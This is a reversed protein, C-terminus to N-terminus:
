IFSISLYFLMHLINYIIYIYIYLNMSELYFQIEERFYISDMLICLMNSMLNFVYFNNIGSLLNIAEKEKLVYKILKLLFRKLSFILLFINLMKHFLKRYLLYKYYFM